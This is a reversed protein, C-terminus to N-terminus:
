KRVINKLFTSRDKGIKIEFYKLFERKGNVGNERYRKEPHM